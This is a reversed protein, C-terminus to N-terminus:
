STPTDEPPFIVTSSAKFSDLAESLKEYYARRRETFGDGNKDAIRDERSQLLEDALVVFDQLRKAYEYYYSHKNTDVSGDLGGKIIRRSLYSAIMMESQLNALNIEETMKDPGFQTVGYYDSPESSMMKLYMAIPEPAGGLLADLEDQKLPEFKERSEIEGTIAKIEKKTKMREEYTMENDNLDAVLSNRTSILDQDDFHKKSELLKKVLSLKSHTKENQDAWLQSTLDSEVQKLGFYDLKKYEEEYVINNADNMDRVNMSGGSMDVTTNRGYPKEPDMMAPNNETVTSPNNDQSESVPSSPYSDSSMGLRSEVTRRREDLRARQDPTLQEWYMDKSLKRGAILEAENLVQQDLQDQPSKERKFISALKDKFSKPQAEGTPEM